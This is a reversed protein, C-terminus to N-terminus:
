CAAGTVAVSTYVMAVHGTAPARVRQEVAFRTAAPGPVFVLPAVTVTALLAEVAARETDPESQAAYVVARGAAAVMADLRADLDGAPTTIGQAGLRRAADPTRALGTVDHGAAAYHRALGAGVFGTAGLVLVNGTM